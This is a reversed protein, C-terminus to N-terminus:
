GIVLNDFPGRKQSVNKNQKGSVAVTMVEFIVLKVISRKVKQHKQFFM